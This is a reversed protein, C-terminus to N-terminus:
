VFEWIISAAALGALFGWRHSPRVVIGSLTDALRYAVHSRHYPPQLFTRGFPAESLRTM